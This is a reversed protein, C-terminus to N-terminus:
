WAVTIESQCEHVGVRAGVYVCGSDWVCISECVMDDGLVFAYSM